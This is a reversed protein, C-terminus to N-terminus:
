VGGTQLRSLGICDAGTCPIGYLTAVQDPGRLDVKSAPPKVSPLCGAIYIGGTITNPCVTSGTGADGVESPEAQASSVAVVGSALLAIPILSRALHLVKM